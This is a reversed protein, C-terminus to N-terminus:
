IPKEEDSKWDNAHYDPTRLRVSGEIKEPSNYGFM